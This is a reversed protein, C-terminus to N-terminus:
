FARIEGTAQVDVPVGDIHDPIRDAPSLQKSPVKQRVSVVICIEKTLKHGRQRYGVGVGVVNAKALLSQEHAAKVAKVREIDMQGGTLDQAPSIADL